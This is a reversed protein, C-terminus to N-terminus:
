LDKVSLVSFTVNNSLHMIGTLERIFKLFKYEDKLISM